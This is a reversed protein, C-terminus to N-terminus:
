FRSGFQGSLRGLRQDSRRPLYPLVAEIRQIESFPFLQSKVTCNQAQDDCRNISVCQANGENDDMQHGGMLIGVVESRENFVPGGSNGRLTDLTSSFSVKFHSHGVKADGSFKAPMGWPHGITFVVGGDSMPSAGLTLPEVGEVDRDLEIVAFDTLQGVRGLDYPYNELVENRYSRVCKYVRNATIADYKYPQGNKLGYDFIWRFAACYENSLRDIGTNGQCHGATVLIRPAILFGTCLGMSYQDQFREESCLGFDKIPDPVISYSNANAQFYIDPVSVAIAPALKAAKPVEFADRRDDTGYIAAVASLM